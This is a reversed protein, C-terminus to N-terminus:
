NAENGPQLESDAEHQSAKCFAEFKEMLETKINHDKFYQQMGALSNSQKEERWNNYGREHGKNNLVYICSKLYAAPDTEQMGRILSSEAMDLLTNDFDNRLEKLLEQIDPNKDIYKKLTEYRCDLDKCAYTLRGKQRKLAEIIQPKPVDWPVGSTGM